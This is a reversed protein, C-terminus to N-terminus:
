EKFLKNDLEKEPFDCLIDNVTKEKKQKTELQHVIFKNIKKLPIEFFIVLLISIVITSCFCISCLYILYMAREPIRSESVYFYYNVNFAGILLFSFYTRSTFKFFGKTLYGSFIPHEFYFAPIIFNFICLISLEGNFLNFINVWFEGFFNNSENKLFSKAIDFSFIIFVLFLIAIIFNIIRKLISYKGQRFFNILKHPIVMFNKLKYEMGTKQMTYNGIGFFMGIFYFSLNFYSAEKLFSYDAQMFDKAPYFRNDENSFWIGIFTCIKAVILIITLIILILDLRKNHTYCFYLLCSGILFFILENAVPTFHNFYHDFYPCTQPILFITSLLRQPNWELLILGRLYNTFQGKRILPITIDFYFFILFLFSCVFFIYKYIQRSIFFFFHKLSIEKKDILSKEKKEEKFNVISFINDGDDEKDEDVISEEEDVKTESINDLFFIFKYSLCFGSISYLVKYSIKMLFFLFSFFPNELINQFVKNSYMKLPNFYINKFALGCIMFLMFIGRLGAIFSIGNENNANNERNLEFLDNVNDPIFFCRMFNNLKKKDKKFFCKGVFFKPIFILFQFLIFLLGIIPIIIKLFLYNHESNEGLDILFSEEPIANMIIGYTENLDLFIKKYENPTCGRPVCIGFAKYFSNYSIDRKDITSDPYLKFKFVMFTLTDYNSISRTNNNISNSPYITNYCFRYYNVDGYLTSMDLYLKTLYSNDTTDLVKNITSICSSTLSKSYKRSEDNITKSIINRINSIIEDTILLSSGFRIFTILILLTSPYRRFM